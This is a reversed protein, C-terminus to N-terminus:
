YCISISVAYQVYPDPGSTIENTLCATAVDSPAAVITRNAAIGAGSSCPWEATM